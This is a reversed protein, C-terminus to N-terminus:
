SMASIVAKDVELDAVTANARAFAVEVLDPEQLGPWVVCMGISDWADFAFFRYAQWTADFSPPNRVGNEALTELYLRLFEEQHDRRVDTPVSHTFFYSIERIGPGSHIVQWDLLGGRGDPLAYTNGGHADGHLVTQPGKEWEAHLAVDNDNVFAAMARVSPNLEHEPNALIKRRMSRFQWLLLKFGPRRSEPAVWSLDGRLRPSEWFTAHLQGLARVIGKTYDYDLDDPDEPFRAGSAALDELVLLHRAGHGAHCAYSQPAVDPGLEPRVQKYFRVENVAMDLAAVMTRNKASLPTSKVFVSAPLGAERGAADWELGLRRRDTTGTTGDLSQVGLLTAGPARDAFVGSLWAADVGMASHPKPAPVWPALALATEGVARLTSGPKLVM